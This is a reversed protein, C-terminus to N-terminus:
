HWIETVYPDPATRDARKRNRFGMCGAFLIANECLLCVCITIWEVPHCMMQAVAVPPWCMSPLRGCMHLRFLRIHRVLHPRYLICVTPILYALPFGMMSLLGGRINLINLLSNWNGRCDTVFRKTERRCLVFGYASKFLDCNDILRRMENFNDFSIWNPM